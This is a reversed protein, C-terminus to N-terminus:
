CVDAANGVGTISPLILANGHEAAATEADNIVPHACAAGQAGIVTSAEGAEYELDLL